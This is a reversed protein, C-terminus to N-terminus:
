GSQRTERKQCTTRKRAWCVRPGSWKESGPLASEGDYYYYKTVQGREVGTEKSAPARQDPAFYSETGFHHYVERIRNNAM